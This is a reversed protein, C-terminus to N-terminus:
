DQESQAYFKKPTEEFAKDFMEPTIKDEKVFAARRKKAEDTKEQNEYGVERSQQYDLLSYSAKEVVPVLKLPIELKTGVFGLPAGRSQADGDEWEPFVTDWFKDVLGYCLVLGDKLGGFGKQKLLAETLWAALQLDKTKNILLDSTLKIVLPSDAVKRDRETMGAPPQDEERRAEKIKDYLPDYRLNARSPNPGEIPNLLDDPFPM